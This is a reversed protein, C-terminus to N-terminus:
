KLPNLTTSSPVWAATALAARVVAAPPQRRARNPARKIGLPELQHPQACMGTIGFQVLAARHLSVILIHTGQNLADPFLEDGLFQQRHEIGIVDDIGLKFAGVIHVVVGLGPGIVERM